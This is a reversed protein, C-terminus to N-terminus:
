QLKRRAPWFSPLATLGVDRLELHTLTLSLSPLVKLGPCYCLTLKQLRPCWPALNEVLGAWEELENLKYIRLEKLGPFSGECDLQKVKPINKLCLDELYPGKGLCPLFFDDAAQQLDPCEEIKLTQPFFSTPSRRNAFGCARQLQM